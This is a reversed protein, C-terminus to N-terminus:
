LEDADASMGSMPMAVFSSASTFFSGKLNLLPELALRPKNRQLSKRRTTPSISRAAESSNEARSSVFAVQSRQTVLTHAYAGAPGQGGDRKESRM